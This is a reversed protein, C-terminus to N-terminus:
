FRFYVGGSIVWPDVKHTTALAQASGIYYHATTKVWYRKADFSIGMGNDNVPIDFGAQVALGAKNDLKVRDVTLAQALAGPKEDIYFFLAPGAGIYPRVPGADFHYKLTITAPLVMVHDVIHKDDVAGASGSVHHSTLCCITEISIEPTAYYEIAITPVVNDNLRTQDAPTLIHSPDDTSTIKGDPLVGTALLKIQLKGEANGAHAPTAIAVLACAGLMATATSTKM